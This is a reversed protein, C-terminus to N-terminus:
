QCWGCVLNIHALLCQSALRPKHNVGQSLKPLIPFIVPGPFYSLIFNPSNLIKGTSVPICFQYVQYTLIATATYRANNAALNPRELVTEFHSTLLTVTLLHHSPVVSDVGYVVEVERDPMAQILLWFTCLVHLTSAVAPVLPTFAPCYESVSKRLFCLPNASIAAGQKCRLFRQRVNKPPSAFIFVTVVQANTAATTISQQAPFAEATFGASVASLGNM